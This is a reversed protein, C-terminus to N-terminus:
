QGKKASCDQESHEARRNDRQWCLACIHLVPVPPEEPRLYMLHPSSEQCSNHQFNKCWYVELRDKDKRPIEKRDKAETKCVSPLMSEYHTFDSSWTEEGM